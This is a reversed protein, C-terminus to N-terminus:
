KWIVKGPSNSGRFQWGMHTVTDIISCILECTHKQVQILFDINIPTEFKEKQRNIFFPISASNYDPAGWSGHCLVNRLKSVERLDELLYKLNEITSNSHSRVAKGYTDILCGLPDSLSRELKPLWDSYAKDINEPSYETTATFAFIAKALTEELFGLTGVARGLKEWFAGDHLHTPFNEPLANQDVINGAM